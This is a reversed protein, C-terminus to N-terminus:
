QLQKELDDDKGDTIDCAAVRSERVLRIVEHANCTITCKAGLTKLMHEQMGLLRTSSDGIIVNMGTLDFVDYVSGLPAVKSGMNTFSNSLCVGGSVDGRWSPTQPVSRDVAIERKREQEDVCSYTGPLKSMGVSCTQQQQQQQQQRFPRPLSLPPTPSAKRSAFSSLVNM